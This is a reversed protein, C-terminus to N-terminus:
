RPPNQAQHARAHPDFLALAALSGALMLGAMPLPHIPPGASEAGRRDQFCPWRDAREWGNVTRRWLPQGSDHAAAQERAASFSCPTVCGIWALLSLIGIVILLLRM